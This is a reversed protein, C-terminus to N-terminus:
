APCPSLIFVGPTRTEQQVMYGLIQVKKGDLQRLTDTLKLGDAGVPQVFFDSLRLKSVGAPLPPLKQPALANGNTRAVPSPVATALHGHEQARPSIGGAMLMLACACAVRPLPSQISNSPKM